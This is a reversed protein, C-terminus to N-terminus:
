FPQTDLDIVDARTIAFEMVADIILHEISKLCHMAAYEEGCGVAGEGEGAIGMANNGDGEVNGDSKRTRGPIAIEQDNLCFFDVKAVFRREVLDTGGIDGAFQDSKEFPRGVPGAFRDGSRM